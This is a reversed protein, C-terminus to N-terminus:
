AAGFAIYGAVQERAIDAAQFDLAAFHLKDRGFLATRVNRVLQRGTKLSGLAAPQPLRFRAPNTKLSGKACLLVASVSLLM